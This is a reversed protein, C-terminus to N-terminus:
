NQPYPATGHTTMWGYDGVKFSVGLAPGPENVQQFPWGALGTGSGGGSSNWKTQWKHYEVHGDCFSFNSGFNHYSGPTDGWITGNGFWSLDSNNITNPNEDTILWLGSPGGGASPGPTRAGIDTLKVYCYFYNGGSYPYNAENNPLNGNGNVMYYNGELCVNMSVSRVRPYQPGTSNEHCTSADDPCKYIGVAQSCYPALLGTQLFITNTNDPDIDGLGGPHEYGDCWTAGPVDSPNQLLAPNPAIFDQNEGPYMEWALALQKHNNVCQIARAREQAARLVPMLIAALIAIIAIVVLLEILTFARRRAKVGSTLGNFNLGERRTSYDLEGPKKM